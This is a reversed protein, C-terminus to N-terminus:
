IDPNDSKLKNCITNLMLRDAGSGAILHNTVTISSSRAQLLLSKIVHQSVTSVFRDTIAYGSVLMLAMMMGAVLLSFETRISKNYYGLKPWGRESKSQDANTM